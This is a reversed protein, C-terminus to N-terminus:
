ARDSQVFELIEPADTSRDDDLLVATIRGRDHFMTDIGIKNRHVLPEDHYTHGFVVKKGWDYDSDIFEERIWLMDTKSTYVPPLGPLFGAHVFYYLKSEYFLPLQSIWKIHEFPISAARMPFNPANEPIYSWLTQQGGQYFWLAWKQQDAPNLFSDFLMDEHNGMLAITQPYMTQLDRIFEICRRTDPGGDVYDGLFIIQHESLDGLRKDLGYFLSTLQTYHGHIDGVAIIM